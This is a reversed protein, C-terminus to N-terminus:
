PSQDGHKYFHRDVHSINLFLSYSMIDEIKVSIDYLHKQGTEDTIKKSMTKLYKARPDGNKYVRHGFGM